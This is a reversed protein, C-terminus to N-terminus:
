GFVKKYCMTLDNIVFDLEYDALIDNLKGKTYDKYYLFLENKLEDTLMGNDIEWKILSLMVNLREAEELSNEDIDWLMATQAETGNKPKYTNLKEACLETMDNYTIDYQM